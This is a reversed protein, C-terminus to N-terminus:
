RLLDEVADVVIGTGVAILLIDAASQVYRYGAGSRKESMGDFQRDAGYDDADGRDTSYISEDRM